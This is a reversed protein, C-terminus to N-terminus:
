VVRNRHHCVNVSLLLPNMGDATELSSCVQEDEDSSSFAHLDVKGKNEKRQKGEDDQKARAM